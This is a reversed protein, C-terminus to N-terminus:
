EEELKVDVIHVNVNDVKLGTMSEIAGKVKDQLAATVKPIKCGYCLIVSIDATVKRDEVSIGVGKSLVKMGLRSVLEKQLSGSSGAMSSVGETEMAAIGAIIAIVEHSIRVEGQDGNEYITYDTGNEHENSM